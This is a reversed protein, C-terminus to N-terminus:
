DLLYSIGFYLSRGDSPIIGPGPYGTARRTYYSRNSLNNIGAKLSLNKYRSSVTLDSIAYAPIPGIIGSRKDGIPATESNQADTYQESLYSYQYSLETNKYGLTLGSKINISPIFEVSKGAVNNEASALYRSYTFAGNFFVSGKFSSPKNAIWQDLNLIVLSETGTIIADGINKRERNARDNLIVGIRDKYFISYLTLDYSLFKKVKGKVGIDGTFGREDAIDPDVVFTPNVIRIDSFTISRYNQSLNAVLQFSPSKKYSLGIGFLAFNRPLDKTEEFINAAIANGANDYVVQTYSGEAQTRIHEIRLGPTISLKDSLYIINETFLAINSNPFTYSSQSPYDLFLDTALTFDADIGISGPGQISSNNSRYYKSGILLVANKNKISYEKLFRLETGINKFTGSILDRPSIYNGNLDQEDLATIPNENLRIPNGRYGVSKRSADLAFISLNFMTGEDIRHKLNAHYLKWNVAFWNRDRTSQRPDELFQQDTLGGSQQAINDYITLESTLTTKLNLRYDLSLYGNHVTYTSNPRYGDGSKYNYFGNISLKNLNLGIANFSNFANYSSYTQSTKVSYKKYLPTKNIKFDILGGFQTGYQLSSAGRIIRIESLAEPPPTYYNEPYGLVDASIDYGNQRTNFNSTRNPDLGRGGINLQLGGSSGEYINLGAVQAYIQRGNNNAVDGKILDVLIVETKKGAFISTGEIDKLQKIGFFQKKQAVIELSNLTYSLPTLHYNQQTNESIILTDSEISYENSFLSIINQGAPVNNLSYYGSGDTIVISSSEHHYVEVGSLPLDSKDSKIQGELIYQGYVSSYAVFFLLYTM